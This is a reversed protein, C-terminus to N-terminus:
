LNLGLQLRVKTDYESLLVNQFDKSWASEPPNTGDSPCPGCNGRAHTSGGIVVTMKAKMVRRGQKRGGVDVQRAVGWPRKPPDFWENNLEHRGCVGRFM